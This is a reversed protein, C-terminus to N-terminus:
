LTARRRKWEWPRVMSRPKPACAARARSCQYTSPVGACIVMAPTGAHALEQLGDQLLERAAVAGVGLPWVPFALVPRRTGVDAVGIAAKRDALPTPVAERTLLAAAQAGQRLVQAYTNCHQVGGPPIRGGEGGGKLVIGLHLMQWGLEKLGQPHLGDM